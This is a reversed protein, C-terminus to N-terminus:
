HQLYVKANCNMIEKQDCTRQKCVLRQLRNSIRRARCLVNHQVCIITNIFDPDRGTPEDTTIHEIIDTNFCVNLVFLLCLHKVTKKSSFHLLIFKTLKRRWNKLVNVAMQLWHSLETNTSSRYNRILFIFSWTLWEMIACSLDTM